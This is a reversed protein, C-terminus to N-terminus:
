PNNNESTTNNRYDHKYHGRNSGGRWRYGRGGRRNGQYSGRASFATNVDNITKSAVAAGVSLLNNRAFFAVDIPNCEVMISLQTYLMKMILKRKTLPSGLNRLYEAMGSMTTIHSLVNHDTM